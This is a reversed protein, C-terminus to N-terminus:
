KKTLTSWTSSLKTWMWQLGVKHLLSLAVASLSLSLSLTLPQPFCAEFLSEWKSTGGSIISHSTDAQGVVCV